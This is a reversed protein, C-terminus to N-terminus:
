KQMAGWFDEDEDDESNYDKTQNDIEVDEENDPNITPIDINDPMFDNGIDNEINVRTKVKDLEEESMLNNKDDFSSTNFIDNIKEDIDDDSDKENNDFINKYHDDLSDKEKEEERNDFDNNNFHNVEENDNDHDENQKLQDFINLTEEQKDNYDDDKSYSYENEEKQEQKQEEEEKRVNNNYDDYYSSNSVTQNVHEAKSAFFEEDDNESAVFDNKIQGEFNPTHEVQGTYTYIGNQDNQLTDNEFDDDDNVNLDNDFYDLLSELLDILFVVSFNKQNNVRRIFLFTNDKKSLTCSFKFLRDRNEQKDGRKKIRMFHQYAKEVQNFIKSNIREEQSTLHMYINCEGYDKLRQHKENSSTFRIKYNEGNVDLDFFLDQKFM